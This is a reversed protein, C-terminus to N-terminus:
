QVAITVPNSRLGQIISMSVAAGVPADAPIRANIQWLGAFGPALGSFEVTATRGGISVSPPVATVALPGGPAAAGDDVAPTTAGQGSAFIVIVQGRQAPTAAANPRGDQNLVAFVGPATPIVTLSGRAVVQSNVRVELAAQGTPLARPAQFNIQGPSAYLQSVAANAIFVETEGLKRPLPLASAGATASGTFPGFLSVLSGPAVPAGATFGAANVAVADARPEMLWVETTAPLTAKTITASSPKYVVEAFPDLIAPFTALQTPGGLATRFHMLIAIRPNLQTIVAAMRQVDATFFGGAAVFVVDTGRLDTLQAETLADQGYDGFHAFSIGGQTWKVITNQGRTTGGTNDHFGPILVFPLGAATTEQRTTVPRGDVLTFSGRVGASNNHDPHNHSVTVVDANLAPLTYGVSAAPPDVVVRQSGDANEVYFCAQGIWTIRVTQACALTSFLLVASFRM